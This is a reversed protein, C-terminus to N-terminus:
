KKDKALQSVLYNFVKKDNPYFAKVPLYLGGLDIYLVSYSIEKGDQNFKCLRVVYDLKNM